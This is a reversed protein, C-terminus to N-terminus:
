AGTVMWRTGRARALLVVLRAGMFVAAFAVWVLVLDGLGLAALALVVPAYVVLVVTGAVALYKGDGAGILVGDLVFVVGAVPQGLAAVLLVPVLLSRVEPDPTFLAGLFPSVAALLVGTGIGSVWGWRVMRDTLRRVSAVDGEGLAKGTLAQAAIAVADLVFVLFGWVTTALQHTALDVESARGTAATAVAYTTVLLAARLTLTRVVLPVGAGASARVGLWRPRLSAGERRAVRVVVALLAAASLVQAVVSGIASGAIGLDLGYVLAVNLVVNLLNGAVAVVLPTRTNQVGRLIGTTALMVLLPVAGFAAIRLYTTAQEAVDGHAGLLAVLPEALGAGVATVVIGITVALWTGDLGQALAGRLDGAGLRRAVAATTGYALFVCLNVLTQLVAGAIGLGALPATGLHGVVASDALLFLPEAVLALLAPFGLRLIERDTERNTSRPVQRPM